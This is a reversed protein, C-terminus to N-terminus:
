SRNMAPMKSYELYAEYAEQQGPIEKGPLPHPDMYPFYGWNIIGDAYCAARDLKRALWDMPTFRWKLSKTGEQKIYDDWDTAVAEGTEVNLWFQKGAARCAACTAAWFPERQELTFFSLHEGSDQLMLIDIGTERLTASWWTGYQEPILYVFGRRRVADLLFFPSITVVSGRKATHCADAATKWVTRWYASEESKEPAIPNIEHNLYWGFFSAHAGYRAAFRTAYEALIKGHTEAPTEGYWGGRPLDVIVNMGRADALTYLTDLIAPATEFLQPANLIWLRDFGAAQQADIAEALRAETWIERDAPTLWWLTGRILPKTWPMPAPPLGASYIAHVEFANGPSEADKEGLVTIRLRHKGPALDHGASVFPTYGGGWDQPFYGELIQPPGGDVVISARGFGAKQKKYALSIATGELEFELASGPTEARWGKGYAGDMPQWGEMSVPTLNAANGLRTHEYTDSILPSPLPPPLAPGTGAPLTEAAMDFLHSVLAGCIQHGRDNPHVSDAEIDNWSIKRSAVDPWLADRFSVMPVRYHRGVETHVQQCNHGQSDMTFLMVAAPCSPLALVQRLLGELTEGALPSGADNVAFEVMVVDPRASLLDQRIRHSGIDSGTAGIGANVFRVETNPFKTRWWAAAHNPWRNEETSASAGATISGGIAAVTIAEGRAAKAMAIHLRSFDGADVVCRAIWTADLGKADLGKADIGKSDLDDAAATM